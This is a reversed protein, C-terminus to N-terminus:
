PPSGPSSRAPAPASSTRAPGPTPNRTSSWSRNKRCPSCSRTSRSGTRANRGPPRTRRGREKGRANEDLRPIVDFHGVEPKAPSLLYAPAAPSGTAEWKAECVSALGELLDHLPCGEAAVTVRHGALSGAAHLQANSQRAAESLVRPRDNSPRCHDGPRHVRLPPVPRSPRSPWSSSSPGAPRACRLPHPDTGHCTEKLHTPVRPRATHGAPEASPGARAPRRAHRRPRQRRSTCTSTTLGSPAPRKQRQESRCMAGSKSTWRNELDDTYKPRWYWPNTDPLQGVPYQHTAVPQYPWSAWRILDYAYCLTPDDAYGDPYAALRVQYHYGDLMGRMGTVEYRSRM